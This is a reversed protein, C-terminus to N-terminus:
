KDQLLLLLFLNLNCLKPTAGLCLQVSCSLKANCGLIEEHFNFKCNVHKHLMYCTM